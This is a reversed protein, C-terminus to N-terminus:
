TLKIAKGDVILTGGNEQSEALLDYVQMARCFLTSPNLGEAKQRRDLADSTKQNMEIIMRHNPRPPLRFLKGM